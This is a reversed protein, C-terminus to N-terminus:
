SGAVLGGDAGFHVVQRAFDAARFFRRSFIEGRDRFTVRLVRRGLTAAVDAPDLLLRVFGALPPLPNVGAVQFHAVNVARELITRAHIQHLDGFLAFNREGLHAVGQFGRNLVVFSVLRGVIERLLSVFLRGFVFVHALGGFLDGLFDVNGGIREQLCSRIELVAVRLFVETVAVARR